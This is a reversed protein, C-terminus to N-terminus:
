HNEVCLKLYSNLFVKPSCLKLIRERNGISEIQYEELPMTLMAEIKDAMDIPNNPDFLRDSRNLIRPNDCVNSAVCVLGSAMAECLVNAFGEYLSPLCFFTAERYLQSIRDSRGAFHIYNELNLGRVMRKVEEEYVADESNSGGYWVFCAKVGRQYLLQLAQLYGIVNKQRSIRATTIVLPTVETGKPVDPDISFKKTDVMNTIVRLRPILRPFHQKIFEGQSYSNPVVYDALRYLLFKLRERRNLIQTTNRESVILKFHKGLLEALCAALCCGDKYAIVADPQWSHVLKAIVWPRKWRVLGEARIEVKIGAQALEQEYFVVSDYFQILRIECGAKKLSIALYTMQREAGGSGFADILLLIKM